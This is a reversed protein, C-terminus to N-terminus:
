RRNNPQLKGSKILEDHFGLSQTNEIRDLFIIGDLHDNEHQIVRAHYDQVENEVLNGFQDHGKYYIKTFRPVTGRLQGVSLCGEMGEETTKTLPTIIPNILVTPTISFNDLGFVFIRKNVGIQPAAIGIGGEKNMVSFMLKILNHLELTDFEHEEIPTSPIRLQPNGIRIISTDM